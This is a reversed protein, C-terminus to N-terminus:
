MLVIKGTVMDWAKQKLADGKGFWAEELRADPRTKLARVPQYYDAFEVVANYWNWPTGKEGVTRGTEVLELVKEIDNRKMKHQEEVAKDEKAQFLFTTYRTLDPSPLAPLAALGKAREEFEAYFRNSIGLIEQAQKAKDTIYSTHKAYFGGGSGLAATLTNQCVVRIPTWKMQLAHWGDYGNTLLVYKEVVDDKAIVMEGPLKALLWIRKGGDLAGVVEYKAAEVTTVADFFEFCDRPQMITYKPSAIGLVRGTDRRVIGKHSTVETFKGTNVYLPKLDVEYNLGGLQIAEASTMVHDVKTGFGYWPTDGVYAIAPKGTSEDINAPM